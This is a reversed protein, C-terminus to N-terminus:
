GAFAVAALHYDYLAQVLAQLEPSGKRYMNVIYNMPSYQVTLGGNVEVSFADDLDQPNIEAIDVYYYTGKQM